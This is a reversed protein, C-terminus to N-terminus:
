PHHTKRCHNVKISSVPLSTRKQWGSWRSVCKLKISVVDEAKFYNIDVSGICSSM